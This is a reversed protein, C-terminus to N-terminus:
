RILSRCYLAIRYPSGNQHSYLIHALKVAVTGSVVPMIRMCYVLHRKHIEKQPYALLARFMYLGKIRLLNFLFNMVNIENYQYKIDTIKVFM